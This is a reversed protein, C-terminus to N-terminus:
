LLDVWAETSSPFSDLKVGNIYAMPTGSVGKASGYKWIARTNMETNHVDNARDYIAKVDKEDLGFDKSIKKSWFPIFDNKSM